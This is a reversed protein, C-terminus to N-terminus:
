FAVVRYARFASGSTPAPASTTLGDGLVLPGQATWIGSTLDETVQSQYIAAATAPYVANMGTGIEMGAVTAGEVRTIEINDIMSPKEGGGGGPGRELHFTDIGLVGATNNSVSALVGRAAQGSTWSAPKTPGIDIIELDFTGGRNMTFIVDYWRDFADPEGDAQIESVILNGPHDFVRFDASNNKRSRDPFFMRSESYVMQMAFKGSGSDYLALRFPDGTGNAPNLQFRLTGEVLVPFKFETSEDSRDPTNPNSRRLVLFKDSDDYADDERSPDALSGSCCHVEWDAAGVGGRTWGSGPVTTPDLYAGNGVSYSEFDELVNTQGNASTIGLFCLISLSAAAFLGHSVKPARAWYVARRSQRSAIGVCIDLIKM